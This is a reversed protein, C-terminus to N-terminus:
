ELAKRDVFSEDTGHWHTLRPEGAKWCLYIPRGDRISPFDLLGLDIDKVVCGYAEIRNILHVIEAKLETFRRSPRPTGARRGQLAPDTELLRIALERRKEWLQDILPTLVPILANAKEPSFVHM